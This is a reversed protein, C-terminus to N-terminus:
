RGGGLSLAGLAGCSCVGGYIGLPAKWRPGTRSTSSPDAVVIATKGREGRDLGLILWEGTNSQGNGIYPPAM